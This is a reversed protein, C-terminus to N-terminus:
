MCDKAHHASTRDYFLIAISEPELCCFTTAPPGVPAELNPLASADIKPRSRFSGIV